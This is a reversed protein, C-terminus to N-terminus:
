PQLDVHVIWVPIGSLATNLVATNGEINVLDTVVTPLTAERVGGIAALFVTNFPLRRNLGLKAGTGIAVTTAAGTIPISVSTVTKFAKSGVVAAGSGATFAPLVETIVLDEVNTGTITVSVAAVNSTTGGPTATVNRPVDPNTIGATVVSAAVSATAVLVATSTGLLPTPLYHGYTNRRGATFKSTGGYSVNGVQPM